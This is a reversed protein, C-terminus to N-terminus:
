LADLITKEGREAKGRMKIGDVAAELMAQGDALTLTKKDQVAGAAKMYATGYLPGSAGGVKSILVMGARKLVASINEENQPIQILVEAFGRAMNVGHDADGIKRDLETLFDKNAIIANGIKELCQYIKTAM